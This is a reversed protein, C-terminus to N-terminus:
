GSPSPFTVSSELDRTTEEVGASMRAERRGKSGKEGQKGEGRAERRGKSIGEGQEREERSQLEQRVELSRAAHELLTRGLLERGNVDCAQCGFSQFPPTARPSSCVSPRLVRLGAPLVTRATLM